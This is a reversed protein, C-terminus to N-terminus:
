HDVVRAGTVIPGIYAKQKQSILVCSYGRNRENFSPLYKPRPGRVLNRLDNLYPFSKLTGLVPDRM